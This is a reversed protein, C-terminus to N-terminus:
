STIYTISHILGPPIGFMAVLISEAYGNLWEAATKGLVESKPNFLRRHPAIHLTLIFRPGFTLLRYALFVFGALHSPYYWFLIAPLVTGVTATLLLELAPLDRKDNLFPVVLQKAFDPLSVLLEKRAAGGM